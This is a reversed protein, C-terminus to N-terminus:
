KANPTTHLHSMNTAGCYGAVIRPGIHAIVVVVVGIIWLGLDVEVRILVGIEEAAVQGGIGVAVVGVVVGGVVVGVVVVRHIEVADGGGGVVVVVRPVVVLDEFDFERM